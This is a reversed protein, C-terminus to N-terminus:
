SSPAGEPQRSRREVRSRVWRAGFVGAVACFYAALLGDRVEILRAMHPPPLAIAADLRTRGAMDAALERGMALFGLGGLVPLLLAIAFM